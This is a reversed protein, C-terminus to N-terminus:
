NTEDHRLGIIKHFEKTSIVDVSKVSAIGNGGVSWPIIGFIERWKYIILHKLNIM